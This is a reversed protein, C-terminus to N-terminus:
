GPLGSSRLTGVIKTINFAQYNVFRVRSDGQAGTPTQLAYAPMALGLAVFLAFPKLLSRM